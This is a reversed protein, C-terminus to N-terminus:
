QLWDQALIKGTTARLNPEFRLMQSIAAGIVVIEEKTFESDRGNEFYAHELRKQLAWGEDEFSKGKQMEQWQSQWKSPLEECISQLM